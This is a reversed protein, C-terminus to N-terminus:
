HAHRAGALTRVEAQVEVAHRKRDPLEFTLTLPV